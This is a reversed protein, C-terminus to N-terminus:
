IRNSFDDNSTLNLSNEIIMDSLQVLTRFEESKTQFKESMSASMSNSVTEVEAADLFIGFDPKM